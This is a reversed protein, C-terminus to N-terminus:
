IRSTLNRSPIPGNVLGIHLYNENSDDDDNFPMPDTDFHLHDYDYKGLPISEYIDDKYEDMNYQENYDNVDDEPIQFNPVFYESDRMSQRIRKLAEENRTLKPKRCCCFCTVLIMALSIIFVAILIILGYKKRKDFEITPRNLVNLYCNKGHKQQHLPEGFFKVGSFIQQLRILNECHFRNKSIALYDLKPVISRKMGDLNILDNGDLELRKLNMMVMTIEISHLKNNSLKVARLERNYQLWDFNFTRLNADNLHVYQLKSLRKFTDVTFKEDTFDNGSLDLELLQQEGLYRIVDTANLLQCNAAYFRILQSLTNAMTSFDVASLNNHSIDFISLNKIADFPNHEGSIVLSTNSLKLTTVYQLRQFTSENVKGVFNDSLDLWKISEKLNAIIEQTNQIENGSIKFERLLNFRTLVSPSKLEKLENQVDLRTLNTQYQLARLDFETLTTDKLNLWELEIFRKFPSAAAATTVESLVNGSLTLRKIKAGFCGLLQTVNKFRNRGAITCSDINTMSGATCHIESDSSQSITNHHLVVLGATGNSIVHFQTTPKKCALDLKKIRNWSILVSVTDMKAFHDCDFSSIPNQTARIIQLRRNNQLPELTQIKNGSLDISQLHVLHSFTTDNITTLKNNSLNIRLLQTANAFTTAEIHQINNYALDIESIKPMRTFLTSPIEHLRNHSANLVKLNVLPYRDFSLRNYNSQSVDIASLYEASKCEQFIFDFACKQFKLQTVFTVNPQLQSHQVCNTHNSPQKQHSNADAATTNCYFGYAQKGNETFKCWFIEAAAAGGGCFLVAFLLSVGIILSYNM